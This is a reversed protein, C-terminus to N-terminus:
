LCIFLLFFPVQLIALRLQKVAKGLQNQVTKRSIDLERAIEKTPLDKEYRLRFIKQRKRPLTPIIAEYAKFLDKWLLNEESQEMQEIKQYKEGLFDLYPIEKKQKAMEKFVRNRVAVYLYGPFNDIPNKRNVWINVFVDQVVDKSKDQDKLLKYANYYAQEWYKEYLKNFSRKNGQQLQLLLFKVDTRRTNNYDM